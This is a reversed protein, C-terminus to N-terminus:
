KGIMNEFNKFELTWLSIRPQTSEIQNISARAVIGKKHLSVLYPAINRSTFQRDSLENMRDAVMATTFIKNSATELIEQIQESVTMPTYQKVPEPAAPEEDVFRYTVFWPTLGKEDRSNESVYVDIKDGEHTPAQMIVSAPIYVREGTNEIVGFGFHEAAKTVIVRTKM